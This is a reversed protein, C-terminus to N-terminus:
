SDLAKDAVVVEMSLASSSKSPYFFLESVLKKLFSGRDLKRDGLAVLFILGSM